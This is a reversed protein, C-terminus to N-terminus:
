PTFIGALISGVAGGALDIVRKCFLMWLPIERNFCTLVNMGSIQELKRNPLEEFHQEMYIHVVLGVQLFQRALESEYVSDGPVSILVEDIVHSGVFRTIEQRKATVPVGLISQGKMDRDVIALGSIQFITIARSQIHAILCRAQDATAIIMITRAYKIQAFKKKLQRKLLIRETYIFLVGLFLTLCQLGWSYAGEFWFALIYVAEVALIVAIQRIVALMEKLYGRILVDKYGDTFFIVTFTIFIMIIGQQLSWSVAEAPWFIQGLLVAVMYSLELALIDGCIFDLHKTRGSKM